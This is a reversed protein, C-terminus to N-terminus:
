RIQWQRGRRLRSVVTNLLLTLVFLGAAVAFLAHEDVSGPTVDGLALQAVFGTMTQLPGRPDYSSSTGFGCAIAVIMTEGAARALGLLMAIAIGPAATPLVVTKLTSWKSAGLAYAAERLGHPVASIADESLTAVLPLIMLGLAIGAGLANMPRIHPVVRQLLPTVYAIAFYAYVIGPVASALELVPKWVLRARPTAYEALAIALFFCIPLAFCLAISTITATGLVLAWIGYRPESFLPAWVADGFFDMLSVDGFFSLATKLLVWGIALTTAFSAAAAVGTVSAAVRDLRERAIM